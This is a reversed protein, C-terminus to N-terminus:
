ASEVANYIENFMANIKNQEEESINDMYVIDEFKKNSYLYKIMYVYDFTYYKQGDYFFINIDNTNTRQIAIKM